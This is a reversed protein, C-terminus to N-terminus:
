PGAWSIWSDMPDLVHCPVSGCVMRLVTRKRLTVPEVTGSGAHCSRVEFAGKVVDGGGRTGLSVPVDQM